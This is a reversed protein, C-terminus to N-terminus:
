SRAFEAPGFRKKWRGLPVKGVRRGRHENRRNSCADNGSILFQLKACTEARDLGQDILGDNEYVRSGTISSRFDGLRASCVDVM